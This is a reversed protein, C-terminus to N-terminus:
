QPNGQKLNNLGKAILKYAGYMTSGVLALGFCARSKNEMIGKLGFQKLGAITSSFRNNYVKLKKTTKLGFPEDIDAVFNKEFYSDIGPIYFTKTNNKFLNNVKFVEKIESSESNGFAKYMLTIAKRAYTRMAPRLFKLKGSTDPKINQYFNSSNNVGTIHVFNKSAKVYEDRKIQTAFGRNSGGFTPDLFNGCDKISKLNEKRTTHFETRIGLARPLGHKIGEYALGAGGVVQATGLVQNNNSM